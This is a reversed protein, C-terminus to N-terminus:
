PFSTYGTHGVHAANDWEVSLPCGGFGTVVLVELGESQLCGYHCWASFPRLGQRTLWAAVTGHHKRALILHETVAWHGSGASAVLLHM